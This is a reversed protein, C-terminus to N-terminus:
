AQIAKFDRELTVNWVYMERVQAIADEGSEADVECWGPFSVQWRKLKKPEPHLGPRVRPTDRVRKPIPLGEWPPPPLFNRIDPM